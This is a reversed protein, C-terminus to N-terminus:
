LCGRVRVCMRVYMGGLDFVERQQGAWRRLRLAFPAVSKGCAM